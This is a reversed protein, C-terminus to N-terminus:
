VPMRMIEQYASVLKNRVQVTLQLTLDARQLAIMADHVDGSGGLMSGVAQNAAGATAKTDAVLKGLSDAFSAGAPSPTSDTLGPAQGTGVPPLGTGIASIPM